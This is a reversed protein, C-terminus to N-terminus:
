KGEFKANAQTVVDEAMYGRGGIHWRYQAMTKSCRVAEKWDYITAFINGIM